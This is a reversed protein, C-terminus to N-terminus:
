NMEKKTHKIIKNIDQRIDKHVHSPKQLQKGNHTKVWGGKGNIKAIENKGKYIDSSM